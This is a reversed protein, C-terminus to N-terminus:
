WLGEDCVALFLYYWGLKPNPKARSPRATGLSWRLLPQDFLDSAIVILDQRM